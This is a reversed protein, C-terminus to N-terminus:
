REASQINLEMERGARLIRCSIKKGAIGSALVKMLDGIDGLAHGEIELIVDGQLMAAADAPSGKEVETVILGRGGSGELPVPFTNVGLYANKVDGSERIRTISKFIDSMPVTMGSGRPRSSNMGIVGVSSDMLPGGSFGSPLSGDTEIFKSLEGGLPLNWQGSLASLMGFAARLSKGPRGLPFVLHGVALTETDAAQISESASHYELVALDIRFDKGILKATSEQGGSSIVQVEGDSELNHAATVLIGSEPSFASGRRRGCRIGYVKNEMSVVLDAISASIDKINMASLYSLLKGPIVTKESLLEVSLALHDPEFFSSVLGPVLWRRRQARIFM